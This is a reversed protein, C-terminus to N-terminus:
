THTRPPKGFARRITRGMSRLDEVERIGSAWLTGGMACFGAGLILSAVSFARLPMSLGGDGRKALIRAAMAQGGAGCAWLTPALASSDQQPGANSMSVLEHGDAM